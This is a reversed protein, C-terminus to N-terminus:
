LGDTMGPDQPVHRRGVYLFHECCGIAEPLSATAEALDLWAAREAEALGAFLEQECGTFSELGVLLLEDFGAAFLDRFEAASTFHGNGLAPAEDADVLGDALFRRLRDLREVGREPWTLYEARMGALRNIAAALLLGGPRLVRHAEAVAQRREAVSLLHYLPGLLLVVDCSADVLHSLDTASAHHADVVARSHGCSRLRELTTELLRESVDVLHLRCDLGALLLDYHGAGVGVDAVVSGPPVLRALLRETMALEVPSLTELRSVESEYAISDYHAGVALQREREESM